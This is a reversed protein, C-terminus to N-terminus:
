AHAQKSARESEWIGMGRHMKGEKERTALESEEYTSVWIWDRVERGFRSAPSLSPFDLTERLSLNLM